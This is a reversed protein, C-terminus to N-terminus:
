EEELGYELESAGASGYELWRSYGDKSIRSVSKINTKIELHEINFAESHNWVSILEVKVVTLCWM